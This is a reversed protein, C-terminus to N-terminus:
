KKAEAVVEDIAKDLAENGPSGVWKKRLIGKADILFLTPYSHIRFMKCVPGKPGDWWHNWPMKDKGLFEAVTSKEDDVNVSLLAFPKDKLKEVLDREHPIMAVCPGCWTAWFDFLVVKGRYSSLKVKKGDLDTGEIEPVPNDVGIKLSILETAAAKALTQDGVKADPAIKVAKEMLAAADMRCRAVAEDSARGENRSAKGDLALANYYLALGKVETNTAKDVVTELFGLGTPGVDVMYALAPAIKPNEVHHRLIIDGAKDMDNGTIQYQGLLKIAFLAADLGADDRKGEEALEVADSATIGNLEKLQFTVQRKEEADKAESLKKKLATEDEAFQKQLKALKRGLPSAPEDGSTGLSASLLILTPILIRRM